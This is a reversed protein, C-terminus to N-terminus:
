PRVTFPWREALAESKAQLRGRLRRAEKMEPSILEAYGGCMWPWHEKGAEPDDEPLGCCACLWVSTHARPSM